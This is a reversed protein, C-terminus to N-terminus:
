HKRIICEENRQKGFKNVVRFRVLNEGDKLFLPCDFNGEKNVLVEEENIWVKSEPQIIGKLSLSDDFTVLPCVHPSYLSFSPKAYMPYIAKSIYFVSTLLFLFAVAIVFNRYSFIRGFWAHAIVTTALSDEKPKVKNKEFLHFAENKDLELLYCYSEIFGKVYIEPPLKSYDNDELAKLYRKSISIKDAVEDLSMEMKERGVRFFNGLTTEEFKKIRFIPTM